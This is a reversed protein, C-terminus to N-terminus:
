PTPIEEFLHETLVVLDQIDVFGDGMPAPAIDCLSDYTHWREVMICVDLADVVGDVNLDVVPTVEVQWIDYTWISFHDNGRAFYLTSSGAAYTIAYENGSSNVPDFSVEQAWHDTTSQRRSVYIDNLYGGISFFLRLGDPSIRPVTEFYETNIPYGLNVAPEWSDNTTQRTTVFLDVGGSRRSMFYLSLGDASISPTDETDSSNVAQGLNEPEGWPDEKTARRSVWLDGGGYGNPNPECGTGKYRPFWAESFYLELGDPSICPSGEPGDTNVPPDLKVPESWIDDITSRKSVWIDCSCENASDPRNSVFYLELGDSSIYPISDYSSSNINLVKTPEGFVFEAKAISASLGTILILIFFRKFTKM